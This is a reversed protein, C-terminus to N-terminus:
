ETTHFALYIATKHSWVMHLSSARSEHECPLQAPRRTM